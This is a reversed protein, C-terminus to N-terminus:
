DYNSINHMKVKNPHNFFHTPTPFQQVTFHKKKEKGKFNRTIRLFKLKYLIMKFSNYLEDMSQGRKAHDISTAYTSIMNLYINIYLDTEM